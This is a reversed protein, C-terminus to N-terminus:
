DPRLLKQKTKRTEAQHKIKMREIREEQEEARPDEISMDSAEDEAQNPLKVRV